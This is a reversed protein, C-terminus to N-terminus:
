STRVIDAIWAEATLTDLVPNIDFRDPAILEIRWDSSFAIRLEDETFRHPGWEGPQRDSFCMLHLHGGPRLVARVSTVYQVRAADDFVHFLGSDIITDFTTGLSDLHLADLVRFSADINREAAKRRATEVARPSIDVGLARAGHLAALITHEGTGCGADLLTGSLAGAEALRVFATQPRDIDWPPPPGVYSDDWDDHPSEAETM